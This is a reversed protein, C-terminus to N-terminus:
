FLIRRIEAESIVDLHWSPEGGTLHTSIHRRCVRTIAQIVSPTAHLLSPRPSNSQKGDVLTLGVLFAAAMGSPPPCSHHPQEQGNTEGRAAVSGSHHSVEGEQGGETHEILRHRRRRTHSQIFPTPWPCARAVWHSAEQDIAAVLPAIRSRGWGIVAPNSDIQTLPPSSSTTTISEGGGGGGNDGGGSGVELCVFHSHGEVLGKLGSEAAKSYCASWGRVCFSNVRGKMSRSAARRGDSTSNCQSYGDSVRCWHAAARQLETVLVASTSSTMSRTANRGQSPTCVVWRTGDCCISSGSGPAWSSASAPTTSLSAVSLIIPRTEWPYVAYASFFHGVVRLAAINPRLSQRIAMACLEPEQCLLAAVLLSWACGGPYGATTGYVGRRHAWFKVLATVRQFLGVTAKGLEEVAEMILAADAPAELCRSTADDVAFSPLDKATQRWEANSWDPGLKSTMASRFPHDDEKESGRGAPRLQCYEIDVPPLARSLRVKLVLVKGSVLRVSRAKADKLIGALREVFKIPKLGSGLCLVDVDSSEIAVGLAGAGVEIVACNPDVRAVAQTVAKLVAQRKEAVDSLEKMVRHALAKGGGERCEGAQQQQQQQKETCEEAVVLSTGDREWRKHMAVVTSEPVQHLSRAGQRRAQAESSCSLEIIRVACGSRKGRDCYRKYERLTSNTNDVIMVHAGGDSLAKEFDQFCNRHADGLRSAAFRYHSTVPDIM